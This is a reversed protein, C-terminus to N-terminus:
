KLFEEHIIKSIEAIVLIGKNDVKYSHDSLDKSLICIVYPEKEFIIGVDGRVGPIAGSKSAIELKKDDDYVDHPLFRKIRTNSHTNKLIEMYETSVKESLYSHKYLGELLNSIEIPTTMGYGFEDGDIKLQTVKFDKEKLYENIKEPKFNTVLMKAATNDSITIMLYIVDLLTLELGDHLNELVGSGGLKTKKSLPLIDNGSAKGAEIQSFVYLAIPLKGISASPFPTNGNLEYLVEGTELNKAYIGWEGDVKSLIKNIKSDLTESM